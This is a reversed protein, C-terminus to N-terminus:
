EDLFAEVAAVLERPHTSHAAHRAGDIVVVRGDALREDLAEAADRFWAPSGSGVVQLVPVRVAGLAELGIAPDDGAAALERVITPAAAVRLPWVPDARFRDLDESSMGVVASMFETLVGADDGAALLERLRELLPDRAYAGSGPASEIVAIRRLAATRTAAALGIRGGLSHGLLDVPAGGDTALAEAVAVVDEIEREISYGAGDGSDGRGRRDIAHLTHHRALAPAVSRWTRHDSTTGHVLLLAPGAGGSFVAIPTGDRSTVLRGPTEPFSATM